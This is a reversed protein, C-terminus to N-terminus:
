DWGGTSFDGASTFDTNVEQEDIRGNDQNPNRVDTSASCLVGEMEIQFCNTMPAEYVSRKM